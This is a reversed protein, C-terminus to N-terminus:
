MCSIQEEISSIKNSYKYSINNILKNLNLWISLKRIYKNMDRQNNDNGKNLKLNM